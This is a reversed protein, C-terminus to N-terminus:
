KTSCFSEMHDKFTNIINETLHKKKFPLHELVYDWAEETDYIDDPNEKLFRKFVKRMKTLYYMEEITCFITEDGVKFGITEQSHEPEGIFEDENIITQMRVGLSKLYVQLIQATRSTFKDPINYHADEDLIAEYMYHRGDVSSRYLATILAFDEPNVVIEFNPTEYEGFRIPKSSHHELSIKALNSKEPLSEESISGASRVSFGKEGSQKLMMIYQYGICDDGIYIDRGWKPKPVFIHYPKIIDGYKQYIKVIADRLNYDKSFPVWKTYLGNDTKLLGNEDVSICDEIFHKRNYDSLGNYINRLDEAHKHNLIDLVDFMFEMAEEKDEMENAHKRVRDLIFSVSGEFMVMPITRNIVALPNTILDCRERPGKAHKVGYEDTTMETTLYPM